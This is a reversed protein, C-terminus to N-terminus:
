NRVEFTLPPTEGTLVDGTARFTPTITYRGPTHEMYWLVTTTSEGPRLTLAPSDHGHSHGLGLTMSSSQEKGRPAFVWGMDIGYWRMVADSTNTLTLKTTIRSDPAFTATTLRASFRIGGIVAAASTETSGQVPIIPPQRDVTERACGALAGVVACVLFCM